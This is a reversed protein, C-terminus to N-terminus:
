NHFAADLSRLFLVDYFTLGSNFRYEWYENRRAAIDKNQHDRILRRAISQLSELEAM